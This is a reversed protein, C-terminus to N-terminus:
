IEAKHFVSTLQVAKMLFFSMYIYTLRFLLVSSHFRERLIVTFVKLITGEFRRRQSM